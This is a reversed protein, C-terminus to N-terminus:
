SRQLENSVYTAPQNGLGVALLDVLVEETTHSLFIFPTIPLAMMYVDVLVRQCVTVYLPRERRLSPSQSGDRHARCSSGKHLYAGRM